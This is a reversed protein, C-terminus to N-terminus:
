EKAAKSFLLVREIGLKKLKNAIVSYCPASDCCIVVTPAQADEEVLLLARFDDLAASYPICISGDLPERERSPPSRGDVVRVNPQGALEALGKPGIIPLFQTVASEQIANIMESSSLFGEARALKFLLLLGLVVTAISAVDVAVASYFSRGPIRVGYLCFAVGFIAIGVGALCFWQALFDIWGNYSSSGEREVMIGVGDSSAILYDINVLKKPACRRVSHGQLGPRGCCSDLSRLLWDSFAERAFSCPM